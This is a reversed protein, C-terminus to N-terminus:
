VALSEAAGRNMTLRESRRGAPAMAEAKAHAKRGGAISRFVADQGDTEDRPVERCAGTAFRSLLSPSDSGNKIKALADGFGQPNLHYNHLALDNRAVRPPPSRVKILSSCAPHDKGSDSGQM